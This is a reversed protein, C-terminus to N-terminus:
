QQQETAPTQVIPATQPAPEVAPPIPEAHTSPKAPAAPTAASPTTISPSTLPQTTVAPTTTTTSRPESVTGPPTAPSSETPVQPATNTVQKKKAPPAIHPSYEIGSLDVLEAVIPTDGKTRREIKVPLYRLEKACWMTIKRDNLTRVIKTTNFKGFEIAVKEEKTIKIDYTKTKGGDAVQYLLSEEGESLDYMIALQYVLKDLTNEAIKMTWPEGNIINTVQMTVWDFKLKVDRKQAGSNHYEYELPVFKNDSWHWHSREVVTGSTFLKAVGSAKTISEFLYSGNGQDVLRRKTTGVSMIGKTVKYEAEFPTPTQEAMSPLCYFALAASILWRRLKYPFLYDQTCTAELRAPQSSASCSCVNLILRSVFTKTV